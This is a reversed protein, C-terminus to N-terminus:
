SKQTAIPPAVIHGGLAGLEFAPVGQCALMMAIQGGHHVDHSMIRWLTWQNSVDYLKARFQHRYTRFLDEVTWEELMREIPRWSLELWQTLVESNDSPLSDEVVHRAGDSDTYWDPVQRCVEDIGPASMRALWNIRGLALHRVTEGLSRVKPAPRWLFQESTLPETAHLLSTQYGNWGEFIAGLATM